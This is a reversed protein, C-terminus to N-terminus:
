NTILLRCKLALAISRICATKEKFQQEDKQLIKKGFSKDTIAENFKVYVALYKRM